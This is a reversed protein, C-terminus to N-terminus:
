CQFFADEYMWRKPGGEGAAATKKQDLFEQLPVSNHRFDARLQNVNLADTVRMNLLLANEMTTLELLYPRYGFFSCMARLGPEAIIRQLLPPPFYKLRCDHALCEKVGPDCLPFRSGTSHGGGAASTALMRAMAGRICKETNPWSSCMVSRSSKPEYVRDGQETVACRVGRGHEDARLGMFEIMNLLELENMRGAKSSVAEYSSWMVDMPGSIGIDAGKAFRYVRLGEFDFDTVPRSPDLRDGKRM